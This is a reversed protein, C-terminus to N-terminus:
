CDRTLAVKVGNGSEMNLKLNEVYEEVPDVSRIEKFEMAMRAVAYSVWFLALQQAPCHRVGGSFPLYHWGPRISQWREPRYADVDDGFVEPNRHMTYVSWLVRDGPTACVPQSGDPGGGYPITTETLCDRSVTPLAPYLRLGENIAHQLYRMNKLNEFTLDEPQYGAVEGRISQWVGPHRALCFFVNSLAVAPTDRGGFFVNLLASSFTEEDKIVKSLEKVLNYKIKGESNGSSKIDGTERHVARDIQKKTFKQVLECSDWFKQDRLLFSMKGLLIRKGVSQQAYNFADMFERAETSGRDASASDLSEGFIFESAADLIMEDFLPKLDVEVGHGEIREVLREVHRGFMDRDAIQGRAFVPMIMERGKKWFAGDSNIVGRGIMSVSAARPPGAGFKDMETALVFQVIRADTTAITRKGFSYFTYTSGYKRFSAYQERIRRNLTIARIDSLLLDLGFIPDRSPRLPPSTCNRRKSAFHLNIRHLFIPILITPILLTILTTLLTVITM